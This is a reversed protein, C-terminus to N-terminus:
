LQLLSHSAHAIEVLQYGVLTLRFLSVVQMAEMLLLDCDNPLDSLIILLREFCLNLLQIDFYSLQISGNLFSKIADRIQSSLGFM